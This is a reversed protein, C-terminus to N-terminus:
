DSASLFVELAHLVNGVLHHSVDVELLLVAAVTVKVDDALDAFLLVYLYSSLLRVQGYLLDLLLEVPDFILQDGVEHVFAEVSVSLVVISFGRELQAYFVVVEDADM